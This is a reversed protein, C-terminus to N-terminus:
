IDWDDEEVEPEKEIVLEAKAADDKLLIDKYFAAKQRAKVDICREKCMKFLERANMGDYPTPDEPEADMKEEVPEKAKKEAKAKKVPKKTETEPESEVKADHEGEVEVDEEGDFDASAHECLVKQAKRANVYDPMLKTMELVTDKSTAMLKALHVTLQGYRGVMDKFVAPDLTGEDYKVMNQVFENFSYNVAMKKKWDVKIKPPSGGKM